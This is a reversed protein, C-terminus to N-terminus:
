AQRFLGNLINEKFVDFYSKHLIAFGCARSHGKANFFHLTLSDNGIKDFVKDLTIDAYPLFVMM